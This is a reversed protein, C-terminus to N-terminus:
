MGFHYRLGISPNFSSLGFSITTNKDDDDDKNPDNSRVLLGQFALDFAWRKTFFYSFGPSIAFSVSSSKTEGGPTVDTNGSTLLFSAEGFFAFNENSTFKYFRAYPGFGISTTETKSVGNDTTSSELSLQAGVAFNDAVFFGFNPLFKLSSNGVDSNSQYSTSSISFAGGVMMNGSSTQAKASFTIFTAFLLVFLTNKM